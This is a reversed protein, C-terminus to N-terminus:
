GRKVRQQLTPADDSKECLGVARPAAMVLVDIRQLFQGALVANGDEL